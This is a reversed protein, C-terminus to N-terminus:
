ADQLIDQNSIPIPSRWDRVDIKGTVAASILATRRENLLTIVSVANISIADLKKLNESIYDAILAQETYTPLAVKVLRLNSVLISPQADSTNLFLASELCVKSNLFYTLFLPQRKYM